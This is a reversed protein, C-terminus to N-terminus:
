RKSSTEDPLGDLFRGAIKIMEGNPTEDDFVMRVFARLREIERDQKAIREHMRRNDQVLDPAHGSWQKSTLNSM